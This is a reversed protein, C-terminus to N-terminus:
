EGSGGVLDDLAQVLPGFKASYARVEVPAADQGHHHVYSNLDIVGTGGDGANAATYAPGFRKDAKKSNQFDPDLNRVAAQVKRNLKEDEKFWGQSVGVETLVLELVVRLMVSTVLPANDFTLLQSQKLTRKTRPSVHRLKVSEFVRREDRSGKRVARSKPSSTEIDSAVQLGGSLVPEDLLDVQSPTSGAVQRVYERRDDKTMFDAVSRDTLDSLLRHMATRTADKSYHWWVGDDDISFGLARRVEPDSVVRGVNTIRKKASDVLRMMDADEEFDAVVADVLQLGRTAQTKKGGRFRAKQSANWPEVGVGGNNGTHRLELWHHAAERDAFETCTVSDPIAQGKAIDSLQKRVQADDCLSPDALLKLAAVRRNGELVVLGSGLDSVYIPEAPNLGGQAVIDAALALLKHPDGGLLANVAERQNSVPEFRPNEVDLLLSRVKANM